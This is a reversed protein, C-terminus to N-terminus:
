WQSVDRIITIPISDALSSFAADDRMYRRVAAVLSDDNLPKPLAAGGQEVSFAISVSGPNTSAYFIVEGRAGDVEVTGIVRQTVGYPGELRTPFVGTLERFNPFDGSPLPETVTQRKEFLDSM